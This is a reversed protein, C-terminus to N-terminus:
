SGTMFIDKVIVIIYPYLMKGNMSKMGKITLCCSVLVVRLVVQSFLKTKM